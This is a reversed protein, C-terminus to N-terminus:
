NVERLTWFGNGRKVAARYADPYAELVKFDTSRKGPNWGMRLAGPQGDIHLDLKEPNSLMNHNTAVSWLAAKLAANAAAKRDEAAAADLCALRYTERLVAIDSDAAAQITVRQLDPASV